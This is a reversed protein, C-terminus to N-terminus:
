NTWHYLEKWATFNLNSENYEDTDFLDIPPALNQFSLLSLM